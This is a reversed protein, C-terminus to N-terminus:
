GKNGLGLRTKLVNLCVLASSTGSRGRSTRRCTIRKIPEAAENPAYVEASLPAFFVTILPQAYPFLASSQSTTVPNIRARPLFIRFSLFVIRLLQALKAGTAGKSLTHIELSWEATKGKISKGLADERFSGSRHEVCTELEQKLLEWLVTIQRTSPKVKTSHSAVM